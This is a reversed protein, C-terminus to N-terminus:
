HGDDDGDDNDVDRLYAAVRRNTGSCIQAGV